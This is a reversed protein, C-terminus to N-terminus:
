RSCPRVANQLFDTIDDVQQKSLGLGNPYGPGPSEYLPDFADGSRPGDSRRPVCANFYEVVDRVKTFSGNHTFNRENKLQRLTLVRFKYLDNTM